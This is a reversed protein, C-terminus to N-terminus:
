IRVRVTDLPHSVILSTFGSIIGAFMERVHLIFSSNIEVIHEDAM